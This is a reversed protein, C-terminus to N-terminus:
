ALRKPAIRSVPHRHSLPPTVPNVSFGGSDGPLSALTASASFM